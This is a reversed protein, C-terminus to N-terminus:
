WLKWWSRKRSPQTAANLKSRLENNETTLQELREILSAERTSIQGALYAKIQEVDSQLKALADPAPRQLTDTTEATTAATSSAPGAPETPDDTPEATAAAADEAVETPVIAARRILWTKSHGTITSRAAIHGSACRRRISRQSVGLIAAAQAVTIEDPQLKM